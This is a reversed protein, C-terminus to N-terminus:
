TFDCIPKNRTSLDINPVGLTKSMIRNKSMILERDVVVDPTAQSVKM